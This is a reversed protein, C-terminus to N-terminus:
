PYLNKFSNVLDAMKVKLTMHGSRAKCNRNVTLFLVNNGFILWIPGSRGLPKAPSTLFPSPRVPARHCCRIYFKFELFTFFLVAHGSAWRSWSCCDSLGGMLGWLGQNKKHRSFGQYMVPSSPQPWTKDFNHTNNRLLSCIDIKLPWFGEGTSGKLSCLNQHPWCVKTLCWILLKHGLKLLIKHKTWAIIVPTELNM